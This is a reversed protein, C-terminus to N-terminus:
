SIMTKILFSGSRLKLYLLLFAFYDILANLIFFTEKKFKRKKNKTLEFSSHIILRILVESSSLFKQSLIHLAPFKFILFIIKIEFKNVTLDYFIIEYIM